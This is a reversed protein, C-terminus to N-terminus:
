AQNGEPQCDEEPVEALERGLSRHQEPADRDHAQDYGHAWSSAGMQSCAILAGQEGLCGPSDEVVVRQDTLVRARQAV